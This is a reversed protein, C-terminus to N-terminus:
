ALFLVFLKDELDKHKKNVMMKMRIINRQMVEGIKTLKLLTMNSKDCGNNTIFLLQFFVNEIHVLYLKFLDGVKSPTQWHVNVVYIPCFLNLFTDGFCHYNIKKVNWM